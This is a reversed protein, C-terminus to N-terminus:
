REGVALYTPNSHLSFILNESIAERECYDKLGDIGGHSECAECVFLKTGTNYYLTNQTHKCFPCTIRGIKKSIEIFDLGFFKGFFLVHRLLIMEDKTVLGQNGRNLKTFNNMAFSGLYLKLM